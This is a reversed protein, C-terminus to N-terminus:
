EDAESREEERRKAAKEDERRLEKDLAENEQTEEPTIEPIDLKM